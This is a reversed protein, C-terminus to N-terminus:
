VAGFKSVRRHDLALRAGTFRSRVRRRLDSPSFLRQKPPLVADATTTRAPAATM